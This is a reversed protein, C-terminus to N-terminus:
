RAQRVFRPRLLLGGFLLGVFMMHSTEPEPVALIANIWAGQAYVATAGFLNGYSFANTSNFDCNPAIRNECFQWNWSNVASLVWQNGDWVFDGSGSDGGAIMAENSGLGASSTWSGGVKTSVRQLTNYRAANPTGAPADFDALYTLGYTPPTYVHEGSYRDWAATLQDNTVDFTNYGYHAFGWDSWTPGASQAGTNTMGYGAFLFNKGVDNTTSLAYGKISTVSENLKILAIDSGNSLTGNWGPHVYAAVATRTLAPVNNSVGFDVTMSKFSDACHAATLVYQGGAMLAGSCILGSQQPTDYLLRAVGDLVGTVGNFDQGASVRWPVSVDVNSSGHASHMMSCVAALTVALKLGHKSLQM